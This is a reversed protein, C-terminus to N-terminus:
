ESIHGMATGPEARIAPTVPFTLLERRSPADFSPSRSSWKESIRGIRRDFTLLTARYLLSATVLYALAWLVGGALTPEEPQSRSIAQTLMAGGFFPSGCALANVSRSPSNRYLLALIMVWGITVIVYISVSATIARGPRSFWTALALGLSTIVAGYAITLLPLPIFRIWDGEVSACAFGVATPLVSLLLAQRFNAWWKGSLIASTSLPTGMLVELTGRARDDSLRTVSTISLLLMGISVQFGNVLVAMQFRMFPITGRSSLAEDIALFSFAAAGAIYIIWVFQIWRSSPKRHWERWLIPNGDLSPWRKPWVFTTLAWLRGRKREARGAQRVAVRRISWIALLLLSASIALIIALYALDDEFTVTGPWAYPAFALWFPNANRLWAPAAPVGWRTTLVGWLTEGLLMAIWMLYTTIIVEHPKTAWVSLTLAVACGLTAVALTVLFAGVLAAPDIGGFLAALFLLPLSCGLLGLVPVLRAALKGLIIEVNSLDTVLLHTLTGRVKDVCVVGATAAPAALMILTLQVGVIAYFVSEGVQAQQQIISRNPRRELESWWAFSVSAFLVLIFLSRAAYFQWRRSTMLWEFVFVPGLGWRMTM